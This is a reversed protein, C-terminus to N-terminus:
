SKHCINNESQMFKEESEVGFGYGGVNLVMWYGEVINNMKLRIERIKLKETKIISSPMINVM